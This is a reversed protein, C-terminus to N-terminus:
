EEGDILLCRNIYPHCFFLSLLHIFTPCFSVCCYMFRHSLCFSLSSPFSTFIIIGGGKGQSTVAVIIYLRPLPFNILYAPNSLSSPSLPQSSSSSSSFLIYFLFTLLFFYSINSFLIRLITLDSYWDPFFTSSLSCTPSIPCLSLSLYYLFVLVLAPLPSTQIPPMKLAKKLNKKAKWSLDVTFNYLLFVIFLIFLIMHM